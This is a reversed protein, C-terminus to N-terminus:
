HDFSSKLGPPMEGQAAIVERMVSLWALDHKQHVLYALQELFIAAHQWSLATALGSLRDVVEPANYGLRETKGNGLDRTRIGLCLVFKNGQLDAFYAGLSGGDRILEVSHVLAVAPLVPPKL